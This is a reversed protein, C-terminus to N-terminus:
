KNNNNVKVVGHRLVAVLILTIQRVCSLSREESKCGYVCVNNFANEEEGEGEEEENKTVYNGDIKNSEGGCSNANQIKKMWCELCRLKERVLEALFVYCVAGLAQCVSFFLKPPQDMMSKKVVMLTSHPDLTRLHSPNNLLLGSYLTTSFKVNNSQGGKESNETKEKINGNHGNSDNKSCYYNNKDINNSNDESNNGNIYNDNQVGDDKCKKEDNKKCIDDNNENDNGNGDSDTHDNVDDKDRTINGDCRKDYNSSHVASNVTEVSVNAVSTDINGRANTNNEGKKTNSDCM